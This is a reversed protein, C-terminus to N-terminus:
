SPPVCTSANRAAIAGITPASPPKSADPGCPPRERRPSAPLSARQQHLVRHLIEAQSAILIEVSVDAREFNSRRASTTSMMLILSGSLGLAHKGEGAAPALAATLRNMAQSLVRLFSPNEEVPSTVIAELLGPRIEWYRFFAEVLSQCASASADSRVVEAALDIVSDFHELQTRAAEAAATAMDPFYHYFTAPSTGAAHAIEAVTITRHSALLCRKEVEALLRERTRRGKRGPVIGTATLGTDLRDSRGVRSKVAMM